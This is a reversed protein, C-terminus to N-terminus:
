QDVAPHIIKLILLDNQDYIVDNDESKKFKNIEEKYRDKKIPYTGRKSQFLIIYEADKIIPFQYLKERNALHPAVAHHASVGADAPILKLAKYIERYNLSRDYHIKSYFQMLSPSYWVSKRHDMLRLSNLSTSLMFTIVIIYGIKKNHFSNIWDFLALSIIPVFEISYHYLTGWLLPDKSLMKQTFVPILMIFYHPKFLLAIGGSVLIALYLEAKIGNYLKEPYINKFFLGFTNKPHTILNVIIETFSKGIHSYYNQFYIPVAGKNIAPMIFGVVLIFYLGAILFLSISYFPQTKLKRFHDKIYLGLIIFVM